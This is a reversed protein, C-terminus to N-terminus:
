SSSKKEESSIELMKMMTKTNNTKTWQALMENNKTLQNSLTEKGFTIGQTDDIADPATRKLIVTDSKGARILIFVGAGVLLVFLGLYVINEHKNLSTIFLYLLYVGGLVLIVGLFSQGVEKLM